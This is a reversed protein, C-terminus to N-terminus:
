QLLAVASDVTDTFTLLARHRDAIYADQVQFLQDFIAKWAPGVLILPRVPIAEILM